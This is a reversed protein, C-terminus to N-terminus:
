RQLMQKWTDDRKLLAEGLDHSFQNKWIHVSSGVRYVILGLHYEFTVDGAQFSGMPLSLQLMKPDFDSEQQQVTEIFRSRSSPGLTVTVPQSSSRQTFSITTQDSFKFQPKRSCGVVWLGLAICSGIIIWKKM